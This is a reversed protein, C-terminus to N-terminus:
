EDHFVMSFRKLVTEWVSVKNQLGVVELPLFGRHMVVLFGFRWLVLVM